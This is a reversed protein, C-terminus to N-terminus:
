DIAKPFQAASLGAIRGLIFSIVILFDDNAHTLSAFYALEVFIPVSRLRIGVGM